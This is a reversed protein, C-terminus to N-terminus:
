EKNLSSAALLNRIRASLEAPSYPKGLFQSAGAALTEERLRPDGSVMVIPIDIPLESEGARVHRLLAIGSEGDKLYCDVILADVGEAAAQLAEAQNPATVVSFGDLELLTQILTTASRDDDVVIIRAM